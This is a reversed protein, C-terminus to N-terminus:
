KTCLMTIGMIILMIAVRQTTSLIEHAFFVGMMTGFLISGGIIIPIGVSADIGKSFVALSTIEALSVSIGAAIVFVIGQWSILLPRPPKLTFLFIGGAIAATIQLIVAGVFQNINKSATKILFSYAGYFFAAFVAMLAQTM